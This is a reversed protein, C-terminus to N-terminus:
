PEGSGRSGDGSRPWYPRVQGMGMTTHYGVGAFFAYDALLHFVRLALPDAHKAALYEITGVYGIKLYPGTGHEQRM